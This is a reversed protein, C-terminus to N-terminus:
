QLNFIKNPLEYTPADLDAYKLHITYAATKGYKPHVKFFKQVPDCPNFNGTLSYNDLGPFGGNVTIDGLGTPIQIDRHLHGVLYYHPVSQDHKHFLQTTTNVQRGMAHLPIGFAKDGGKLHDGHSAHFTWGEVDFVAFPQTDLHWVVNTFNATLAEVYAYLFQDLNSYRNETPMKRQNDWRTHNGVSTEIRIKPVLASLNRIFQAFAHGAGYFQNFKTNKQGAEAGHALAGDLMDGGMWIVLENLPATTHDTLISIVSHELRKLRALFMPFNYCGFGLTQSPEVVKGVHTDTLMLVASEPTQKSRAKRKPLRVPPAPDYGVPAINTLNEVLRDVVALDRIAQKYQRELKLFQDKWYTASAKERAIDAEVVHGRSRRMKYRQTSVARLSRGLMEAAEADTLTLDSLVSLDEDTWSSNKRTSRPHKATKKM